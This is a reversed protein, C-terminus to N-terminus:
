FFDIMADAESFLPDDPSLLSELQSRLVQAEEGKGEGTNLLEFYARITDQLEPLREQVAMFAELVYSPKHGYMKPQPKLEGDQLRWVKGKEVTGLLIPSHTTAVFQINPFTTTLINSVQQQWRPHLHLDLEDILVIGATEKYAQEGLFPNLMYCRWALEILLWLLNRYGDSLMDAPLIAGNELAVFLGSPLRSSTAPEYYYLEKWTSFQAQSLVAQKVARLGVDKYGADVQRQQYESFEADKMWNRILKRINTENLANYYGLARGTSDVKDSERRSVFLRQTSFYAILPLAKHEGDQIIQQGRESLRAMERAHVSTIGGGISGLTRKWRIEEQLVCGRAEVEVDFQHEPYRMGEKAELRIDDADIKRGEVGRLNMFFSGAAVAMGRLIATKGSGNQGYILNMGSALGKIELEKFSKFNRLTVDSLFPSTDM